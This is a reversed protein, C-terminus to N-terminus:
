RHTELTLIVRAIATITNPSCRAKRLIRWTKVPTITREIPRRPRSHARNVRRQKTTLNKGPRRRHSGAVTDGTGQHGPHAPVPIGLRICTATIRHRRAATLNHTPGPSAPSIGALTGDPATVQLNLGHRHHKGSHHTHNDTTRDCETLTGDLPVHRANASRLATTLNPALQALHRIVTHIHAHTTGLSIGFGAALQRLTDNNRLYM